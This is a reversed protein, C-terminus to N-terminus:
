IKKTSYKEHILYVNEVCFAGPFKRSFDEPYNIKIYNNKETIKSLIIKLLASEFFPFSIM